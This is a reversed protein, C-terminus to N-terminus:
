YYNNFEYNSLLQKKYINISKLFNPWGGEKNCVFSKMKYISYTNYLKMIENCLKVENQEIIKRKIYKFSLKSKTNILIINNFYYEFLNKKIILWWSQYHDNIENNEIIGLLDVNNIHDKIEKSIIDQKKFIVFSDNMLYLYKTHTKDKNLIYEYGIKYKGFDYYLNTVDQILIINKNLTNILYECIKNKDVIDNIKTLSIVVIITEIDTIDIMGMNNILLKSMKELTNHTAYIITNGLKKNKENEYLINYDKKEIKNKKSENILNHAFKDEVQIQEQMMQAQRMQGWRMANQRQMRMANQRQMGMVKQRQMGMVKQRQMQLAKQKQVQEQRHKHREVYGNANTFMNQMQQHHTIGRQNM